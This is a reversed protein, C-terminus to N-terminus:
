IFMSLLINNEYFHKLIYTDSIVDNIQTMKDTPAFLSVAGCILSLVLFANIFGLVAGFFKNITKLGPLKFMSELIKLIFFVFIRVIIFVLLIGIVKLIMATVSDTIVSMLNNKIESMGSVTKKISNEMFKPFALAEYVEDAKETDSTYIDDSIQKKEYSKSINKEVISKVGTGIPSNQMATLIANQMTALLVATLILALINKSASLFGKKASIIIFFIFIIVFIGDLIFNM